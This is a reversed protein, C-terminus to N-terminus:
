GHRAIGANAFMVVEELKTLALSRERTDAVSNCILFAFDKATNRIATYREPQTGNPAHYTFRSVIDAVVAMNPHKNLDEPPIAVGGAVVRADLGSM